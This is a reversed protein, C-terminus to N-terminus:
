ADSALEGPLNGASVRHRPPCTSPGPGCPLTSAAPEPGPETNVHIKKHIWSNTILCCHNVNGPFNGRHHFDQNLHQIEYFYFHMISSFFQLM